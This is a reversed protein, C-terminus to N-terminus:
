SRKEDLVGALRAFHSDDPFPYGFTNKFQEHAERYLKVAGRMTTFNFAFCALLSANALIKRRQINREIRGSFYCTNQKLLVEPTPVTVNVEGYAMLYQYGNVFYGKCYADNTLRTMGYNKDIFFGEPLNNKKLLKGQNTTVWELMAAPATEDELLSELHQKFENIKM